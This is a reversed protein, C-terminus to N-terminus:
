SGARREAAATIARVLLVPTTAGRIVADAVSGLLWRGPGSRGHSTMVILDGPQTAGIIEAAVPGTLVETSSACDLNRISLAASELYRTAEERAARDAEIVAPAILTGGRILDRLPDADVVRLIHLCVGLDGALDIAVPLAAAARESGDLPVVIRSIVPPATGRAGDRILLTNAGGHRAVRDAVSGLVARAAGGLGRTRMMILDADSAAEIIVGAPDGFQAQTEVTRGVRQLEKAHRDLYDQIATIREAREQDESPGIRLLLVRQSPILSAFGLAAESEESGDLPVIIRDLMM